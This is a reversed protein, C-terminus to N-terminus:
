EPPMRRRSSSAWRRPPKIVPLQDGLPGGVLELTQDGPAVDARPEGVGISKVRGGM